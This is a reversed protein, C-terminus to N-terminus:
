AELLLICDSNMPFPEHLNLFYDSSTEKKESPKQIIVENARLKKYFNKFDLFNYYNKHTVEERQLKGTFLGTNEISNNRSQDYDKNKEGSYSGILLM